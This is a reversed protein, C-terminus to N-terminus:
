ADGGRAGGAAEAALLKRIDEIEREFLAPFYRSHGALSVTAADDHPEVKVHLWKESYIFRHALGAVCMAFAIVIWVYGPDYVVGFWAWHRLEAFTVRYPGLEAAGGLAVDQEGISEGGVLARIRMVPNEPTPSQSVVFAGKRGDEPVVEVELRLPLQPVDFHDTQDASTFVLNVFSDFLLKGNLDRIEFRPAFGYRHLFIQWREHKLPQNVRVVDKRIALPGDMLSLQAAYDVPYKEQEFRSEFKDLSVLTGPLEPSLRGKGNVRLMQEESFALTQGETLVMEADFRGLISVVTGLLFVLMSLHFVVSGWFGNAGKQAFYRVAGNESVDETQWRRSRLVSGIRETVSALPRDISVSTAGEFDAERLRLASSSRPIERRLRRIMCLATSLWIAGPLILFFPSRTLYQTSLNSSIWFLIPRSARMEALERVTLQSVDPLTGGVILALALLILSWVAFQRSIL